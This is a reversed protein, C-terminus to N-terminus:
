IEKEEVIDDDDEERGSVHLVSIVILLLIGVFIGVCFGIWFM